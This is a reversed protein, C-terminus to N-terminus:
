KKMYNGAICNLSMQNDAFWEKDENEPDPQSNDYYLKAKSTLSNNKSFCNEICPTKCEFKIETEGFSDDPDESLFEKKHDDVKPAYAKYQNLYMTLLHNM